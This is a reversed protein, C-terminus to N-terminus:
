QYRETLEAQATSIVDFAERLTTRDLSGLDDPAIYNDPRTNNSVQSMQHRLRVLMLFEFADILEGVYEGNLVNKARLDHLRENTNTPRLDFEIAYVRALDSIPMTGRQKIDFTGKHSGSRELLLNRFFGVPPTNQVALRALQRMFLRNRRAMEFVDSQLESLLSADGGAARMDFFITANMVEDPEPTNIWKAFQERWEDGTLRWRPNKAMFGGPCEPFGCELLAGNVFDAMRSFYDRALDAQESSDPQALILANDQDTKFTQERRGESGMVAWCFNIPPAGLETIALKLIRAIVQDNMEAVVRGITMPRAGERVLLPIANSANKNVSALGAVTTQRMLEKSILLPSNSQLLTLDHTAILGIIKDANGDVVILHHINRNVMKVLAEVALDDAEITIIPQSMVSSVSDATNRNEAVVRSRLDNNTLIGCPMKDNSDWIAIAGVRADRMTRAADQISTDPTCYILGRKILNRVPTTFLLRDSTSSLNSANQLERLGRELYRSTAGRMFFEGFRTNSTLLPMVVQKPILYCLTDEETRVTMLSPGTMLLGTIGFTDGEGRLDLLIDTGTENTVGVRVSGKKVVYLHASPEDGQARIVRGRPFYDLTASRALKELETETLADFPAYKRLFSITAQQVM